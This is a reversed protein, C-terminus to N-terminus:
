APIQGGLAHESKTTEVFSKTLNACEVKDGVPPLRLMQHSPTDNPTEVIRWLTKWM